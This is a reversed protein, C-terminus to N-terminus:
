KTPIKIYFINGVPKNPKVGVEANHAEAIRKVIALGLGRGRKTGEDLQISRIFINDYEEAPITKGFDEVTIEVIDDKHIGRLILRKGDKAYKISNSIYNRFVEAIIQNAEIIIRDPLKIELSMKFSKLSSSFENAIGKIIEVLDLENKEIEEDLAVKSLVTASEIVKLLNASSEKILLLTEDGPSEEVGIDAMGQIVGAPNKLDHTIIDLLLEKMNNTQKLNESLQRYKKESERLAEEAAKRQSIDQGVYILGKTVGDITKMVSASFLVPLIEGNKKLYNIEIGTIFGEDFIKDYSILKQSNVDMIIDISKNILEKQEYGLLTLTAQNITQITNNPKLNVVILTDAMSNLITEVFTKSVSTEFLENITKYGVSEVLYVFIAGFLFILGVFLSLSGSHGLTILFIIGIYGIIFFIMLIFLFRWSKVYKGSRLLRILSRTRQSALTLVIAGLLILISTILDITNM